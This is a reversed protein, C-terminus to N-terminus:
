AAAIPRSIDFGGAPGGNKLLTGKRFMKQRGLRIPFRSTQAMFVEAAFFYKVTASAL